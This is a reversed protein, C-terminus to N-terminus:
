TGPSNTYGLRVAKVIRRSMQYDRAQVDRFWEPDISNGAAMFKEVNGPNILKDRLTIMYIELRLRDAFFQPLAIDYKREVASLKDWFDPSDSVLGENLLKRSMGISNLQDPTYERPGSKTKGEHSKRKAIVTKEKNPAGLKGDRILRQRLNNVQRRELQAIAMVDENLAGRLLLPTAKVMIGGHQMSLERRAEPSSLRKKKLESMLRRSAESRKAGTHTAITLAIMRKRYFPLAWWRRNRRSIREGWPIASNPVKFAKRALELGGFLHAYQHAVGELRIGLDKGSLPAKKKEDM